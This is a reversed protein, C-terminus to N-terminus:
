WIWFVMDDPPLCVEDNCAQLTLQVRVPGTDTVGLPATLVFAKEYLSLPTESFGLLDSSCVDSSLDGSMIEYATKQEFFFFCCFFSRLLLRM